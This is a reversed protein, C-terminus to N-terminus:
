EESYIKTNKLQSDLLESVHRSFDNLNTFHNQGGTYDGVSVATKILIESMWRSDRVDLTSFYVFAGNKEIFGWVEFHGRNFFELKATISKCESIIHSKFDRAFATFQPTLSSSSEFEVQGWKEIINM